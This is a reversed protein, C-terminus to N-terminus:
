YSHSLGINSNIRSLFTEIAHAVQCPADLHLNHGSHPIMEHHRHQFAELMAQHETDDIGHRHRLTASAPELVLTPATINKWCAKAETRRYLIPNTRKHAPDALYHLEETNVKRGLYAQALWLAREKTLGTNNRQLRDALAEVDPYTRLVPPSTQEDLWQRYRQPANEPNSDMLGFGDLIILRAIREPRIGAYLAAINGGMSHGVLTVPSLPQFHNIIYELDALYDPFWYNGEPNWASLGFGRWDPAIIHWASQLENVVFQFAASVDMWGHLFFLKPDTASGWERLHYRLGRVDLFLSNSPRMVSTRQTSM